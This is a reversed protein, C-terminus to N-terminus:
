GVPWANEVGGRVLTGDLLEVVVPMRRAVQVDHTAVLVTIGGRLGLEILLDAVKRTNESDLAGTPEDALLVTAGSLLSRAIAVRQQEGGSLTAPQRDAYGALGVTDLAHEIAAATVPQSHLEACLRLNDEVSLFEVLRYDQHVLAVRPNGASCRTSPEVPQGDVLVMGAAPEQLGAAIRLLTSKGSGSPGMLAVPDPGFVGSVDRLPTVTSRGQRYSASIGRLEIV